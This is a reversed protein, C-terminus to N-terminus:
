RGIASDINSIISAKEEAKWFLNFSRSLPQIPFRDSWDDQSCLVGEHPEPVGGKLMGPTGSDGM